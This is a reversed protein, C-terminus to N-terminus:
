TLHYIGPSLVRFRHLQSYYSLAKTQLSALTQRYTPSDLLRLFQQKWSTMLQKRPITHLNLEAEQQTSPKTYIYPGEPDAPNATLGGPGYVHQLDDLRYVNEFVYNSNLEIGIGKKLTGKKTTVNIVGYGGRSGYLAAAAAGKLVTISEIDEPNLSTLGDGEDSGGWVGVQGFQSNDMPIGDIVYLPQNDSGISKNGRIIVRSSGGAGTASKTVNVGAVRGQISSGLNNERAETLSVGPVKTVSSQLSKQSREIGLATVVVEAPQYFACEIHQVKQV